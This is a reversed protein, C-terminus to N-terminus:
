RRRFWGAISYRPRTAPLVEHEIEDSLFLTCVGLEPAVDLPGEPLWLRLAGGHEAHWDDNLYCTFSLVRQDDDRFRDRHRAYFAGAPYMAYHCEIEHLGLLLHRNLWQRLADLRDLLAGRVPANADTEIWATADGRIHDSQRAFAGRGVRAPHLSGAAELRRCDIALAAVLEVPLLRACVVFGRQTLAVSLEDDLGLDRM